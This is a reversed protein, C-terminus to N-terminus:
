GRSYQLTCILIQKPVQIHRQNAYHLIDQYDTATYFGNGLGSHDPGSGLTPLLCDSEDYTHGRCAGIQFVHIFFLLMFSPSQDSEHVMLSIPVTQFSNTRSSVKTLEPLDHIQLRWAEDESMHLHFKNLKYLSMVDLLLFIEEKPFFNRCIDLM